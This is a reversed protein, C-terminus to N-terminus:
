KKTEKVSEFRVAAGININEAGEVATVLIFKAYVATVVVQAVTQGEADLVAGLTFPKVDAGDRELVVMDKQVDSVRLILADPGVGPPLRPALSPLKPAAAAAARHAEPQGYVMPVAALQKLKVDYASLIRSQSKGPPTLIDIVWPHLGHLEGGGFIQDEAVTLVPMTLVNKKHEGALRGVVDFTEEWLAGTVMVAYGWHPGPEGLEDVNVRAIIRPGSNTVRNPTLVRSAYKWGDMVSRALAPQPTLLVAKDWPTEAELTVNRGPIVETTGTIPSGDTDIYIDINQLYLGNDLEITRASTRRVQHPLRLVAGLTVEFVVDRGEKRVEFGRLDFAGRQYWSGSPPIYHGPGRDDGAPDDFSVRYSPRVAAAPDSGAPDAEAGAGWTLLAPLLM